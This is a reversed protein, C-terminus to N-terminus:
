FSYSHLESIFKHLFLDKQSKWFTDYFKPPKKKKRM